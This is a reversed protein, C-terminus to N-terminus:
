HDTWDLWRQWFGSRAAPRALLYDLSRAGFVPISAGHHNIKSSSAPSQAPDHGILPLIDRGFAMVRRPAALAIHHLTLAGLGAEGLASWDLAPVHRPLASALYVREADVGAANFFSRLLRGRPGSLLEGGDEPEPQPVLIMLDAEHPGRPAVRAGSGGLDLSPEGLWWAAFDDFSQPWAGSDGGIRPRAAVPAKRVAPAVPVPRAEPEQEPEPEKLWCETADNFILDVGAERWWDQAAAIQSVLSSSTGTIM